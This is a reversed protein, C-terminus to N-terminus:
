HSKSLMFSIIALIWGSLTIFTSIFPNEQILHPIIMLIGGNKDLFSAKTKLKNLYTLDLLNYIADVKKLTSRHLKVFDHMTFAKAEEEGNLLDIENINNLAIINYLRPKDIYKPGYIDYLLQALNIKKENNIHVPIGGLVRYRHAIAEFGYNINKMNWHVWFYNEHKQIFNYFEDLMKKEIVDYNKSIDSIKEIEAIKHISFSVDNESNLYKVAISTIRPTRGNEINYFSECSYHVIFINDINKYINKIKERAAKQRNYYRLM